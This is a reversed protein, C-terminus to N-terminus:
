TITLMWGTPKKSCKEGTSQNWRFILVPDATTMLTIVFKTVKHGIANALPLITLDSVTFLSLCLGLPFNIAWAPKSADLFMFGENARLKALSLV